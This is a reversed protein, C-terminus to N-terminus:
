YNISNDNKRKFFVVFIIVFVIVAIFVAIISAFDTVIYKAYIQNNEGYKLDWSLNKGDDNTANTAKANSPLKLNFNISSLEKIENDLNIEKETTSYGTLDINANLEYITSFFKNEKTFVSQEFPRLLTDGGSLAFIYEIYKSAKIEENNREVEFGNQQLELVISDIMSSYNRLDVAGESIKIDYEISATEDRNITMNYNINICSTCMIAIISLLVFKVINKKM